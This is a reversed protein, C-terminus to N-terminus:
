QTLCTSTTDNWFGERVATTGISICRYYGALTPDKVVIVLPNAASVIQWDWQRPYGMRDFIVIQGNASQLTTDQAAGPIAGRMISLNGSTLNQTFTAVEETQDTYQYDGTDTVGSSLDPKSDNFTFIVYSTSSAFRIGNGRKYPTPPVTSTSPGSTMADSRAKQIDAFIEKVRNAMRAQKVYNMSLSVLSFLIGVIIITVLLEIISFGNKQSVRNRM